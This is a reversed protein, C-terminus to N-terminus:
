FSRPKKLTTVRGALLCSLCAQRGSARCAPEAPNSHHDQNHEFNCILLWADCFLSAPKSCKRGIKLVVNQITRLLVFGRELVHNRSHRSEAQWFARCAPRGAPPVVPLGAQRLCSLCAQRGSARCAPEAPNSHHDQNREFNCILLWADCFLSAPKTSKRWIM